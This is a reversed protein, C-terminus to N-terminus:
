ENRLTDVEMSDPHIHLDPDNLWLLYLFDREESLDVTEWYSPSTQGLMIENYIGIMNSELCECATARRCMNLHADRVCMIGPCEQNFCAMTRYRRPREKTVFQESELFEPQIDNSPVIKNKNCGLL